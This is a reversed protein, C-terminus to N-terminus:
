QVDGLRARLGSETIRAVSRSESLDRSLVLPWEGGRQKDASCRHLLPSVLICLVRGQKVTRPAPLRGLDDSEDGAQGTGILFPLRLSSIM